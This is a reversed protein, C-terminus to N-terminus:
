VVIPQPKPATDIEMCLLKGGSADTATVTITAKALSTPLASSMKIETPVTAAGKALPCAMGDWTVSGSGLPLDFTQAKCIDGNFQKSIFSANVDITFKGETVAEDITGTGVVKTNTGLTLTNPKLDTVKGHTSADGCDHWTLALVGGQM